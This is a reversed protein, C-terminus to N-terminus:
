WTGRRDSVNSLRVSSRQPILGRISGRLIRSAFYGHWRLCNTHNAAPHQADEIELLRFNLLGERVALCEIDDFVAGDDPSRSLHLRVFVLEGVILDLYKDGINPRQGFLDLVHSYRARLGLSLNQICWGGRSRAVRTVQTSKM